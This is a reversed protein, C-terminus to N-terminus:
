QLLMVRASEIKRRQKNFFVTTRKSAGRGLLTSSALIGDYWQSSQQVIDENDTVIYNPSVTMTLQLRRQSSDLLLLNNANPLENLYFQYTPSKDHLVDGPLYRQQLVSMKELHAAIFLLEDLLRNVDNPDAFRGMEQMYTIQKLTNDFLGPSLIDKGSHNFCERVFQGALELARPHILNAAFPKDQWKSLGWSTIGYMFIKFPRMTPLALEYPLPLETSINRYSLDRLAGAYAAQQALPEFFEVESTIRYPVTPYYSARNSEEMLTELDIGYQATLLLLEETALVTDGRMRRYVADRGVGLVEAVRNVM